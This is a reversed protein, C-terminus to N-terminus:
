MLPEIGEASTRESSRAKHAALLEEEEKELKEHAAFMALEKASFTEHSRTDARAARSVQDDIEPGLFDCTDTGCSVMRPASANAQNVAVDRSSSSKSTASADADANVNSNENTNANTANEHTKPPALPPAATISHETKNTTERAISM